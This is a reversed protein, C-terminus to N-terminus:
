CIRRKRILFQLKAAIIFSKTNAFKRIGKSKDFKISILSPVATDIKLSAVM